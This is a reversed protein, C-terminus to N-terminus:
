VTEPYVRTGGVARGVGSCSSFIQEPHESRTFFIESMVKGSQSIWNPALGSETFSRKVATPPQLLMEVGAADDVLAAGDDSGSTELAGISDVAAEVAPDTSSITVSAGSTPVGSAESAGDGAGDFSEAAATLAAPNAATTAEMAATM